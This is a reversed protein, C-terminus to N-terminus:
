FSAQFRLTYVRGYPDTARSNLRGQAVNAVAPRRTIEFQDNFVNPITLVMRATEFGFVAGFDYYFQLNVPKVASSIVSTENEQTAAGDFSTELRTTDSQYLYTMNLGFNGYEWDVGLTGRHEPLVLSFFSNVSAIRDFYSDVAEDGNAAFFDCLDNACLEPDVLRLSNELARNYAIRFNFNGLAETYVAYSMKADINRIRQDSLNYIRDDIFYLGDVFSLIPNNLTGQQIADLEPATLRNNIIRGLSTIQNTFENESYNIEARFGALSEPAFRLGISRTEGLEPDLDPNGGTIRLGPRTGGFFIPQDNEDYIRINSQVVMPEFASDILDPAKFSESVNVVVDLWSAPSYILGAAWSNGSFQGDYDDYRYAATLALRQIATMTNKDGVLPVYIETNFFHPTRSAKEDYSGEGFAFSDGAFAPHFISSSEDYIAIEERTVGVGFLINADGANTAFPTGRVKFDFANNQTDTTTLLDPIVFNDIFEQQSSLGFLPQFPHYPSPTTELSGVIRSYGFSIIQLTDQNLTNQKFSEYSNDSSSYALEWSWDPSFKGDLSTFINSYSSETHQSEIPLFDAAIYLAVSGTFPSNVQPLVSQFFNSNSTSYDSEASRYNASIQFTMDDEFEYEYSIRYNLSENKPILTINREDRLGSASPDFDNIDNIGSFNEPLQAEFIQTYGSVDVGLNGIWTYENRCEEGPFCVEEVFFTDIREGTAPDIYFLPLEISESFFSTPDLIILETSRINGPNGFPLSPFQTAFNIDRESGDLASEFQGGGGITLRSNDWSFTHAIDVQTRQTGGQAPRAFNIDVSTGQYDKKTIINVVGGIADSGFPVLNLGKKM